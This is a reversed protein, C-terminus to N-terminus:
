RDSSEEHFAFGHVTHLVIPIGALKAAVRGVFGAKSTHTHVVTYGARGLFQALTFLGRLDRLPRIERWICDLEVVGIGSATLARQFSADTTLVGVHWGQRKALGALQMVILSGGGFKSDGVIHLVKLM